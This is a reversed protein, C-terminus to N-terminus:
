IYFLYCVSYSLGEINMENKLNDEICKKYNMRSFHNTIIYIYKDDTYLDIVHVIHLCSNETIYKNLREFNSKIKELDMNKTYPIRKM